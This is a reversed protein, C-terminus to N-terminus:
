QGAAPQWGNGMWVMRGKPTDYVQGVKRQAAPVDRAGQQPASDPAAIERVLPMGNRDALYRHVAVTRRTPRGLEDTPGQVDRLEWASNQEGKGTLAATRQRIEHRRRGGPDNADSLTGYERALGDVETNLRNKRQLDENQAKTNAIQAETARKQLDFREAEEREKRMAKREAATLPAGIVELPVQGPRNIVVHSSGDRNITASKMHRADAAEIPRYEQQGDAAPMWAFRGVLDANRAQPAVIPVHRNADAVPLGGLATVQGDSRRILGQGQAVPLEGDLYRATVPGNGAGAGGSVGGGVPPASHLPVGAARAVEPINTLAPYQAAIRTRAAEASESPAAAANRQTPKKGAFDPPVSTARKAQAAAKAEDAMVERIPTPDGTVLTRAFTAAPDLAMGVGQMLLDAGRGIGRLVKGGATTVDDALALVGGAAGRLGQGAAAAVGGRAHADRIRDIQDQIYGQTNALVDPSEIAPQRPTLPQYRPVVQRAPEPRHDIPQAAPPLVVPIAQAGAVPVARPAVKRAAAGQREIDAVALRTPDIVQQESDDFLRM